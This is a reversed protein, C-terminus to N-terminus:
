KLPAGTVFHRDSTLPDFYMVNPRSMPWHVALNNIILLNECGTKPPM